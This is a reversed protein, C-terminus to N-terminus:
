LKEVAKDIAATTFGRRTLYGYVRQKIKESDIGTYQLARHQALKDVIKFEPYDKFAQMLEDQSIENDIGKAKLELRIRSSGLPKSLRSSIWEKAFQRDDILGLKKFYHLTQKIDQKAYRKTALKDQIEKESRLRINLLRLVIQKAKQLSQDSRQDNM